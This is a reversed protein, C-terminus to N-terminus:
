ISSLLRHIAGFHNLVHQKPQRYRTSSEDALWHTITAQPYGSLRHMLYIPTDHIKKFERPHMPEIGINQAM